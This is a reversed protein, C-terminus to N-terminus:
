YGELDLMMQNEMESNVKNKAQNQMQVRRPGHIYYWDNSNWGLRFANSSAFLAILLIVFIIFKM